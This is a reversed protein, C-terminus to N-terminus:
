VTGVEWEHELAMIGVVSDAIVVEFQAIKERVDYPASWNNASAAGVTIAFQGGLLPLKPYRIAIEGEGATIALPVARLFTNTGHICRGDEAQIKIGFGPERSPGHIKYRIRVLLDERTRFVSKRQGAGDCTAVDIIEIEGSGWRLAVPDPGLPRAGKLKREREQQVHTLYADIVEDPKGISQVRGENLWLVKDCIQKVRMMDHSVFVITTHAKLELFKDFCQRQFGADGVALIEDTLLIEAGAHVAVAFGLRAYMGSSYYKVPTDLYEQLGSFEVIRQFTGDIEARTMGLVAANLYINERGSLESNFGAGLEILSVVRGEAQVRGMTPTTIGAILKLVTSKGAGNSGIIGFTEGADITFSLHRLAWFEQPESRIEATRRFPLLGM